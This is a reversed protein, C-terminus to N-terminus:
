LYRWWFIHGLSDILTQSGFIWTIFISFCIFPGFPIYGGRKITKFLIAVLAFLGGLLFSLMITVEFGVLGLWAASMAFLKVDGEGLGPKGIIFKVILSFLYVGFFVLFFSFLHDKFSQFSYNDQYSEILFIYALGLISGLVTLSDPLIMYEIDIISLCILISILIWGFLISIISLLTGDIFPNTKYCIFFLLSTTVEILPYKISISNFCYRCRGRLFIWSFVPILDFTKLKEYCSPCRSRPFIFSKKMPLRYIVVNLFSGICAGFLIVALNSDFM